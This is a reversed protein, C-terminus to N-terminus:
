RENSLLADQSFNRLQSLVSIMEKFNIPKTLYGSFGAALCREREGIMAHATLAFIPLEYGEARLRRTAQLGDCIPMQLDMLVADFVNERVLKVAEEGNVAEIVLARQRQLVQCVLARIDAADEAVLVRMDSLATETRPQKKNVGSAEKLPQIIARETAVHAQITLHFCSGRGPVSEELVLDGGLLKELKLSLALGLGTGGYQRTISPDAQSYAGFIKQSQEPTMGIGTDRIRFSLLASPLMSVQVRIEGKPTFKIANGILNLLIQKLRIPDTQILRPVSNEV